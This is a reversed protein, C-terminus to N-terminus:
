LPSEGYHLHHILASEPFSGVRVIQSRGLSLIDGPENSWLVSRRIGFSGSKQSLMKDKLTLALPCSVRIEM